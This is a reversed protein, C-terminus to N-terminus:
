PTSRTLAEAPGDRKRLIVLLNSSLRGGSLSAMAKLAFCELWAVPGLRTFATVSGGVVISEVEFGSERALGRIRSATNMRYFTPFVDAARRRELMWVIRKKLWDPTLSALLVLYHLYNATHFLFRGGPRLVRRIDDLFPRPERIHEVVMNATVLDFSEARFPLAGCLAIVRESLLPHDHIAPDVDLGVLLRAASVIQRQQELPMAWDPAVQRGCGVELWRTGPLVTRRLLRAYRTQSHTLDLRLARALFETGKQWISM